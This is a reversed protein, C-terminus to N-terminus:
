LIRDELEWAHDLVHWAVRRVFYRPTWRIGGRPGRPAVEGHAAATLAELIAKRTRKMEEDSDAAQDQKVKWALRSLYGADAGLVHQVVGELERGGGRPGKRLEKGNASKVAADFARWCAKLIAEFRQLEAESVPKTDASPALNPAGFDTTANGKLREVVAFVSTDAPARFQFQKARLVQAYRQGYDVLAGLASAEDRGSRCWGPWDIGGAFTRKEGIELYVQILRATM